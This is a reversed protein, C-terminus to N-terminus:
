SEPYRKRPADPRRKQRTCTHLRAGSSPLAQFVTHLLARHHTTQPSLGRSPSFYKEYLNDRLFEVVIRQVFRPWAVLVYFARLWHSRAPVRWFSVRLFLFLFLSSLTSYRTFICVERKKTSTSRSARTTTRTTTAADNDLFTWRANGSPFFVLSNQLVANSLTSPTYSGSSSRHFKRPTVRARTHPWPLSFLPFSEGFQFHSVKFFFCVSAEISCSFTPYNRDPAVTGM